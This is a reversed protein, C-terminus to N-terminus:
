KGTNIWTLKHAMVSAPLYEIYTSEREITRLLSDPDLLSGYVFLYNQNAAIPNSFEDVKKFRQNKVVVRKCNMFIDHLHEDVNNEGEIWQLNGIYYNLSNNISSVSEKYTIIPKDIRGAYLIENTVDKSQNSNPTLVLLVAKSKAIANIIEEQYKNAVRVNRPAYWCTLGRDELYALIKKLIVKDKTAYSIFIDM